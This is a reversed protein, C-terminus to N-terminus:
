SLSSVDVGKEALYYKQWAFYHQYGDSLYTLEAQALQLDAQQLALGSIMGLEYKKQAIAHNKQEIVLSSRSARYTEATSNIATLMAKLDNEASQKQTKMQLEIAEVQYDINKREDSGMDSEVSDKLDAKDEELSELQPNIKVFQNVLQATFAPANTIIGSMQMPVVELPNGANRGILVNLSRKLTDRQEKTDNLTNEAETRVLQQTEVNITTTMGLQKQLEYIQMTKDLLSMQEEMLVITEDLQVIALALQASSYRMIQGLDEIADEVDEASDELADLADDLQELGDLAAVAASDLSQEASMQQATLLGLTAQLSLTNEGNAAADNIQQQLAAMTAKTASDDYDMSNLSTQTKRRTNRTMQQQLEIQDLTLELENLTDNHLAALQQIQTVTLTDMNRTEAVINASEAMAPAAPVSLGFALLTVAAATKVTTKKM